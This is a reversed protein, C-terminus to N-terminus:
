SPRTGAKKHGDRSSRPMAPPFPLLRMAESFSRCTLILSVAPDHRCMGPPPHGAWSFRSGSQPTPASRRMLLALEAVTETRGSLVKILDSMGSLNLKAIVSDQGHKILFSRQEPVSTRIWEVERASLRFAKRTARTM